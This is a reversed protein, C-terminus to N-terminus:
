VLAGCQTCIHDEKAMSSGCVPCVKEEKGAAPNEEPVEETLVPETPVFEPVPEPSAEPIPGLQPQQVPPAFPSTFGPTEEAQQNPQMYTPQAPPQVPQTVPAQYTPYGEPTQAPAYAPAQNGQQPIYPQQPYPQPPQAYTPMGPQGPVVGMNQGYPQGFQAGSQFAPAYELNKGKAYSNYSLAVCALLITTTTSVLSLLVSAAESAFGAGYWSRGLSGLSGIVGIANFSGFILYMVGFLVSGGTKMRDGNATGRLSGVFRLQGILVLLVVPVVLLFVALVVSVAFQGEWYSMGGLSFAALMVVLLLLMLLSALVLIIISIVYLITLGASPTSLPNDSRSKLYIIWLAVCYLIPIISVLLTTAATSANVAQVMEPSYNNLFSEFQNGLAGSLSTGLTILLQISYVIATALVIPRRLFEKLNQLNRTYPNQGAPEAYQNPYM